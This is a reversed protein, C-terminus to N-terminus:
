ETQNNENNFQNNDTSPAINGINELLIYNSPFVKVEGDDGAEFGLMRSWDAPSAVGHTITKVMYEMRTKIDIELMSDLNFEIEVGRKKEKDTLLKSQMHQKYQRVITSITQSKFALMLQEVNNYKSTSTDGGLYLPVGYAGFIIERNLKISNVVEADIMNLSIPKMETNPPMAFIKGANLYGANKSIFLETIKAMKEIAGSNVTSQVALPSIAGNKYFADITKGAKIATGIELILADVPNMGFVNNGNGSTHWKFHLMNEARVIGDDDGYKIKYKLVGDEITASKVTLPHIIEYWENRTGKERIIAFSNGFRVRHYEMVYFFDYSTQYVSPQNHLTNYLRHTIHKEKGKESKKWIELPFKAINEALVKQCTESIMSADGSGYTFTPLNLSQISAGDIGPQVVTNLPDTPLHRIGTTNALIEGLTKYISM